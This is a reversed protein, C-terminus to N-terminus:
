GTVQPCKSQDRRAGHQLPVAAHDGPFPGVRVACASRRDTGLGGREDFAERPFIADPPVLPDVTFQELEAV